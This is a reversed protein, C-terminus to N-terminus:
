RLRALAEPSVRTLVTRARTQVVESEVPKIDKTGKGTFAKLFAPYARCVADLRSVRGAGGTAISECYKNLAVLVPPIKDFNGCIFDSTIARVKDKNVGDGAMYSAVKVWAAGRSKTKTTTIREDYDAMIARCIMSIAIQDNCAKNNVAFEVLLNAAEVIRKPIVGGESGHSQDTLNRVAGSDIAPWVDDRPLNRVVLLFAGIKTDSIATLRHHGDLLKGAEDFAIGQHTLLFEGRLLSSCYKELTRPRINRNGPSTKLYAEALEPTVLEVKPNLLKTLDIENYALDCDDDPLQSTNLSDM